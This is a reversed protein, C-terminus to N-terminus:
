RLVIYVIMAAGMVIISSGVPLAYNCLDEKCSCFIGTIDKYKGEGCTFPDNCNRDLLGCGYCLAANAHKFGILIELIVLFKIDLTGM